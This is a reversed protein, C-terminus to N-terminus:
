QNPNRENNMSNDDDSYMTVCAYTYSHHPGPLPVPSRPLLSVRSVEPLTRTLM